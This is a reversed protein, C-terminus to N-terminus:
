VRRQEAKTKQASDDSRNALPVFFNTRFRRQFKDSVLGDSLTNSIMDVNVFASRQELCSGNVVATIALRDVILLTGTFTGLKFGFQPEGEVNYLM